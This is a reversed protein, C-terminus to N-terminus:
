QLMFREDDNMERLEEAEADDEEEEEEEELKFTGGIFDGNKMKYVSYSKGYNKSSESKIVGEFLQGYDEVKGRLFKFTTPVIKKSLVYKFCTYMQGSNKGKLCLGFCEIVKDKLDGVIEDHSIKSKKSPKEYKEKNNNSNTETNAITNKLVKANSLLSLDKAVKLTTSDLKTSNSQLNEFNRKVNRNQKQISM